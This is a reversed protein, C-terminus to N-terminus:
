ITPRGTATSFNGWSSFVECMQYLFPWAIHSYLVCMPFSQTRGWFVIYNTQKTWRASGDTEMWKRACGLHWPTTGDSRWKKLSPGRWGSHLEKPPISTDHDTSLPCSFKDNNNNNPHSPALATPQSDLFPQTVASGGHEPSTSLHAHLIREDRPFPM